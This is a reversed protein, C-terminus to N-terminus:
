SQHHTSLLDVFHCVFLQDVLVILLCEPTKQTAEPHRPSTPLPETTLVVGRNISPEAIAETAIVVRTTRRAPSAQSAPSWRTPVLANIGIERRPERETQDETEGTTMRSMGADETRETGSANMEIGGTEGTGTAKETDIGISEKTEMRVWQTHSATGWGMTTTEITGMAENTAVMKDERLTITAQSLIMTAMRPTSETKVWKETAEMM